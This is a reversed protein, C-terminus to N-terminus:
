YYQMGIHPIEENKILKILSQLLLPAITTLKVMADYAEQECLMQHMEDSAIRQQEERALAAEEDEIRRKEAEERLRANEEAMKRAAESQEKQQRMVEQAGTLWISWNFDSMVALDSPPDISIGLKKMDELRACAVKQQREQEQQEAYKEIKLLENERSRSVEEQVRKYGDLYRGYELSAQKLEKHIAATTTRTKVYLQRLAKAQAAEEETPEGTIKVIENFENEYSKMKEIEPRFSNKVTEVIAADLSVPADIVILEM